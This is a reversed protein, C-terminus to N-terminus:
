LGPCRFDHAIILNDNRTIDAKDMDRLKIQGNNQLRQSDYGYGICKKV